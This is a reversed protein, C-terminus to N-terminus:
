KNDILEYSVEKIIKEAKSDDMYNDYYDHQVIYNILFKCMDERSIEILDYIKLAHMDKEITKAYVEPNPNKDVYDFLPGIKKLDYYHVKLKILAKKFLKNLYIYDNYFPYHKTLDEAFKCLLQEQVYDLNLEEKLETNYFDQIIPTINKNNLQIDHIEPHMNHERATLFPILMMYHERIQHKKKISNRYFKSNNSLKGEFLKILNNKNNVEILMNNDYIEKFTAILNKSNFKNEYDENFLKLITNFETIYSSIKSSTLSNKKGSKFLPYDLNNLDDMRKEKLYLFLYFTTEPTNFTLINKTKIEWCPIITWPDKELLSKLTKDETKQFYDNCAVLFDNLTLNSLTTPTMGSTLILGVIAKYLTPKSSCMAIYIDELSIPERM